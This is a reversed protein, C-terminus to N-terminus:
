IKFRYYLSVYLLHNASLYHNNVRYNQFDWRYGVRIKFRPSDQLSLYLNSCIRQYKHLSTLNGGSVVGWVDERSRRISGEPIISGLSPRIIYNLVPVSLEWYFHIDETWPSYDVVLSPGLNVALCHSYGNNLWKTHSSADYSTFIHFGPYIRWKDAKSRLRFARIWNISGRYLHAASNNDIDPSIKSKQFFIALQSYHRGHQANLGIHVMYGNGRYPMPSHYEDLITSVNLGTGVGLMMTNQQPWSLLCSISLCITLFFKMM